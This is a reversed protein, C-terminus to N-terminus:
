TKLCSSSAKICMRNKSKNRFLGVFTVSICSEESSEREILARALTPTLTEAFKIESQYRIRKAQKRRNHIMVAISNRMLKGFRSKTRSNAFNSLNVCFDKKELLFFLFLSLCLPLSAHSILTILFIPVDTNKCVTGM